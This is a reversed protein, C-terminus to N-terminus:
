NNISKKEELIKAVTYINVSNTAQTNFLKIIKYIHQM